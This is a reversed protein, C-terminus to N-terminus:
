QGSGVAQTVFAQYCYYCVAPLTQPTTHLWLSHRFNDDQYIMGSGRQEKTIELYAWFFVSLAIKAEKEDYKVGECHGRNGKSHIYKACHTINKRRSM